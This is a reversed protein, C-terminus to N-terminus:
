FVHLTCNNMAVINKKVFSLEVDVKVILGIVYIDKTITVHVWPFILNKILFFNIKKECCKKKLFLFVRINSPKIIECMLLLTLSILFALFNKSDVQEKNYINEQLILVKIKSKKSLYIIPIFHSKSGYSGYVDPKYLYFYNDKHWLLGNVNRTGFVWLHVWFGVTWLAILTSWICTM